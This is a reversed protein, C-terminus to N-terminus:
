GRLLSLISQGAANAQALMATGAQSLVQNKTFTTMESAMDLDRITSEAASFNQITTRVNETAVEIRSQLSGIVGLATNVSGIAADIQSLASQANALTTPDTTVTLSTSSLNLQSGTITIADNTNYQGSSSVLFTGTGGGVTINGALTAAGVTQNTEVTIGLSTFNLTQKSGATVGLTQSVSGNTLTVVSSGSSMTLAGTSAGTLKVDYVGTTTALATSHFSEDLTIKLAGNALRTVQVPRAQADAAEVAMAAQLARAEAPTPARLRGSQDVAAQMGAGGPGPRTAAPPPASSTCATLTAALLALGALRGPAPLVPRLM